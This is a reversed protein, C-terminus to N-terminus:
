GGISATGSLPVDNFSGGYATARIVWDLVASVKYRKDADLVGAGVRQQLDTAVQHILADALFRDAPQLALKDVQERVAAELLDVTVTEGSLLAKADTAIERIKEAREVQDAASSGREIVKMTAYSVLLEASNQKCASLSICIAVLMCGLAASITLRSRM